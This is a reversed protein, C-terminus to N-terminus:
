IGIPKTLSQFYIHQMTKGKRNHGPLRQLGKTYTNGLHMLLPVSVLGPCYRPQASVRYGVACARGAGSDTVAM